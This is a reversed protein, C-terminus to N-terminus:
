HIAPEHSRSGSERVPCYENAATVPRGAARSQGAGFNIVRSAIPARNGAIHNLSAIEVGISQEVVSSNQDSAAAITTAWSWREGAGFEIHWRHQNRDRDNGTQSEVTRTYRCPRKIRDVKRTGIENVFHKEIDAKGSWSTVIGNNNQIPLLHKYRFM